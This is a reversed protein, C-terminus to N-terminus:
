IKQYLVQVDVAHNSLKSGDTTRWGVHIQGNDALRMNFFYIYVSTNEHYGVIGIPKYGAVQTPSVWQEKNTVSEGNYSVTELRVIISQNIYGTPDSGCSKVTCV